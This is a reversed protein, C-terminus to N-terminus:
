SLKNGVVIIEGSELGDIVEEPSGYERVLHNCIDLLNSGSIAPARAVIELVLRQKPPLSAMEERGLESIKLRTKKVDDSM